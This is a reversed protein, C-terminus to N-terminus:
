PGYNGWTMYGERKVVFLSNKNKRSKAVVNKCTIMLRNLRDILCVAGSMVLWEILILPISCFFLGMTSDWQNDYWPMFMLYNEGSSCM